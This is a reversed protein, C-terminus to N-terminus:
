GCKRWMYDTFFLFTTLLYEHDGDTLIQVKMCKIILNDNLFHTTAVTGAGIRMSSDLPSDYKSRVRVRVSDPTQEVNNGINIDNQCHLCCVASLM